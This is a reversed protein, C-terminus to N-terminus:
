AAPTMDPVTEPPTEPVSPVPTMGAPPAKSSSDARVDIPPVAAPEPLDGANEHLPASIPKRAPQYPREELADPTGAAAHHAPAPPRRSRMMVDIAFVVILVIVLALLIYMLTSDTEKVPQPTAAKPTVTVTFSARVGYEGDSVNVVIIATGSWGKDPRINVWGDSTVTVGSKPNTNDDIRFTLNAKPTDTDVTFNLINFSRELVGDQELQVPPLQGVVPPRNHRVVTVNFPAIASLEGDSVKIKVVATGDWGAKSRVEINDNIDMSVSINPNSIDAVSFILSTKPNDPDFVYDLLNFASFVTEGEEVTVDPMNAIFRPPQLVHRVEVNVAVEAWEGADDTARLLFSEAGYWNPTTSISVSGNESINLMVNRNGSTSYELPDEDLHRFYNKVNFANALPINETMVFDPLEQIAEPRYNGTINVGYVRLIGPKESSFKLLVQFLGSGTRPVVQELYTRLGMTSENLVATTNFKGPWSWEARGDSNLDLTVNYPYSEKTYTITIDRFVPTKIGYLDSVLEIKFKLINGVTTFDVTTGQQIPNWNSGRNNSIYVSVNGGPPLTPLTANWVLNASLVKEDIVIDTSAYTGNHMFRGNVGNIMITPPNKDTAMYYRDVDAIKVKTAGITPLKVNPASKLGVCPGYFITSNIAYTIGDFNNAFAVDPNGDLNVDGVDVGYAYATQFWANPNNPDFGSPSGFFAYSLTRTSAGDAYNAFLVDLWGDLNLDAVALDMTGTTDFSVDPTASFGTPGGYHVTSPVRLDATTTNRNNAFVIDPWGDKNLDAIAVGRAAQTPLLVDASENFGTPGGFYVQSFINGTTQNRECAFAIDKWGDRNLDGTAVATAGTTNMLEDPTLNYGLSTGYYVMSSINYRSYNSYSAFIIDQYGDNNLDDVTVDYAGLTEIGMPTSNDFGSEKGYYIESTANYVNLNKYVSYVIDRYGDSNVDNVTVDYSPGIEFMQSPDTSFAGNNNHYMWNRPIGGQSNSYIIEPYDLALKPFPMDPHDVSNFYLDFYRYQSTQIKGPILWILKIHANSSPNYDGFDMIATPLLYKEDGSLSLNYPIM